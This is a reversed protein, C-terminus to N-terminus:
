GGGAGGPGRVKWLSLHCHCGNGAQHPHYKPLFTVALNHKRAVGVIAERTLLLKDAATVPDYPATAIEFQGHASEAHYQVVGIGMAELTIM